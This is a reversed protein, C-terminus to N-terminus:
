FRLYLPNGDSDIFALVRAPYHAARVVDHLGFLAVGPISSSGKVYMGAGRQGSILDNAALEDYAALVTNRSVQLLGALMRTSPLRDHSRAAGSHIASSIEKAIQRHMPVQSAKDLVISPVFLNQRRSM